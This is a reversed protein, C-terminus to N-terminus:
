YSNAMSTCTDRGEQVERGVRPVLHRYEKGLNGQNNYWM